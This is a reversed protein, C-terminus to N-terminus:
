DQVIPSTLSMTKSVPDHLVLGKDTLKIKPIVSLGMFSLTMFPERFGCGLKRAASVVERLKSAVAQVDDDSMLGAIPLKLGTLLRGEKAVMVGGNAEIVGKIAIAMDKSSAGVSIINHHDHAVSSALAGKALGFGKVFGLGVNGTARHREVVAARLIDRKIDPLVVGNKVTLEEVSHETVVSSDFAHITHVRVKGERIKAKVVLDDSSPIEKVNITNRAFPPYSWPTLDVKLTGGEAVVEGKAIVMEVKVKEIDSLLLLNARLGPSLSGVEHDIRFYTAANITAMQIATIADYGVEITERVLENM